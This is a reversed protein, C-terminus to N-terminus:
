QELQAQRTTQVLDAYFVDWILIDTTGIENMPTGSALDRAEDISEARILTLGGSHNEFGGGGCAVLKGNAHLEQLWSMLRSIRSNFEEQNFSEDPDNSRWILAYVEPLRENSNNEEM